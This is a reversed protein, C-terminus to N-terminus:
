RQPLSRIWEALIQTFPSPEDTLAIMPMRMSDTRAVRLYLVSREPHGPVVLRADAVGLDGAIGVLDAVLKAPTQYRDEPLKCLLREVVAELASPIDDRGAAVPPPASQQHQLLKQVATGDAFPPRGTLMFFLTCGLSYLDSRVDAARPDRAQEPSIYDFTGLTMGSATLDQDGTVQHLRALGMDVLRARGAPTIIINSPKIDRHVVDREAAHELADAVQIAVNITRALDFPGTEAVVDRLNMGEIFEFVIFHWGDEAGVAHVRGINEHDLRAASQAENKFRRLM